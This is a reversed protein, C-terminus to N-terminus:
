LVKEGELYNILNATDVRRKGFGRDKLYFEYQSAWYQGYYGNAPDKCFDLIERETM